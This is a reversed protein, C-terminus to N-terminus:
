LSSICDPMNTNEVGEKKNKNEWSWAKLEHMEDYKILFGKSLYSKAGLGKQIEKDTLFYKGRNKWHKVRLGGGGRIKYFHSTTSHTSYQRTSLTPRPWVISRFPSPSSPMHRPSLLLSMTGGPVILYVMWKLPGFSVNWISIMLEYSSVWSDSMLPACQATNRWGLCCYCGTGAFVREHSEPDIGAKVPDQGTQAPGPGVQILYTGAKVPDQGTQAPDTKVPVTGAKVPDQGVQAPDKGAKVPDRGTQATDPGVQVPDTRAKVPDQGSQAPDKGIQVPDTGAKVPNQGTQAPDPGVQVPDTGAKGPDQGTQAPDPQVPVKEVKVSDQGTQAPDPGVQVPDTGAKIPDRGTQAPDTGV